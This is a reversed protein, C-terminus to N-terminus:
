ARGKIFDDIAANIRDIPNTSQVSPLTYIQPTRGDERDILEALTRTQSTLAQIKMQKETLETYEGAELERVKRQEEMAKSQAKSAAKRQVEATVATAGAVSGGMIAATLAAETM